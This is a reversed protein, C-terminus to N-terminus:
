IRLDSLRIGLFFSSGSPWRILRWPPGVYTDYRVLDAYWGAEAGLAVPGADHMAGAGLRFRWGDRTYFQHVVSVGASGYAQLDKHRPFLWTAVPGLAFVPTNLLIDRDSPFTRLLAVEAGLALNRTVCFAVHFFPDLRSYDADDEEAASYVEGRSWRHDLGVVAFKTGVKAALSASAVLVIVAATRGVSTVARYYV